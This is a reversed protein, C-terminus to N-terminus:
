KVEGKKRRRRIMLKDIIQDHVKITHRAYQRNIRITKLSSPAGPDNPDMLHKEFEIERELAYALIRRQTESLYLIHHGNWKSRDEFVGVMKGIEYLDDYSKHNDMISYRESELARISLVLQTPNLMIRKLKDEQKM